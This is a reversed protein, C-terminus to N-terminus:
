APKPTLDMYSRLLAQTYLIMLWVCVCVCVCVRLYLYAHLRCPLLSAHAYTFMCSLAAM